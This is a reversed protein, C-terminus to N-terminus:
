ALQGIELIDLNDYWGRMTCEGQHMTCMHVWQVKIGQSNVDTVIGICVDTPRFEERDDVQYGTCTKYTFTETDDCFTHQTVLTGNRLPM